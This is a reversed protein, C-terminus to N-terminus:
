TSVSTLETCASMVTFVTLIIQPWSNACATGLIFCSMNSRIYVVSLIEIYVIKPMFTLMFTASQPFPFPSIACVRAQQSFCTGCHLVINPASCWYDKSTFGRPAMLVCWLACPLIGETRSSTCDGQQPKGFCANKSFSIYIYIYIYVCVYSIRMVGFICICTRDPLSM